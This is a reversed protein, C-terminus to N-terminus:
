RRKTLRPCSAVIFRAIDCLYLSDIERTPVGHLYPIADQSGVFRAHERVGNRVEM